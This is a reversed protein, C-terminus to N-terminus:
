WIWVPKWYAPTSIPVKPCNLSDELNGTDNASLMLAASQSPFANSSSPAGDKRQLPKERSIDTLTTIERNKLVHHGIFENTRVFLVTIATWACILKVRCDSASTIRRHPAPALRPCYEFEPSFSFQKLKQFPRLAPTRM